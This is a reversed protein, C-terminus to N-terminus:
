PQLQQQQAIPANPVQQGLMAPVALANRPSGFRNAIIGALYNRVPSEKPALLSQMLREGPRSYLAHAGLAAGAIPIGHGTMAGGGLVSADLLYRGATGSDAVTSPLTSRGVDAWDQMLANGHAFARRKFSADEARTANRLQAPTFVGEKSGLSGAADEVRVMQAHAKDVNALRASLEGPNQRHLLDNLHEQFGLIAKGLNRQDPDQSRLYGRADTGLKSYLQKIQNGTLQGSDGFKKGINEVVASLQRQQWEPLSPAVENFTKAVGKMFEPDLHGSMKGLVDDYAHSVANRGAAVADYGAKTGKPLATELPKIARNVTATNFTDLSRAQANKIASGALPLSTLKDEASKWAGGLTQGPTLKVGADILQRAEPTAFGKVVKGAMAGAGPIAAGMGAGILTNTVHEGTSAYPMAYGQTGGTLAGIGIKTAAAMPAAFGLGGTAIGVPIAEGLYGLANGIKGSTTNMLAADQTRAQQIDQPSVKGVLEGLGRGTDVVAKGAGAALRQYWPMTAVNQAQEQQFRAARAAPTDQAAVLAKTRALLAARQAPSLRAAAQQREAVPLASLEAHLQDGESQGQAINPFNKKIAASMAEQSMGDPFNLTGVGPVNVTQTM